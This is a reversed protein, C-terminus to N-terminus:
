AEGMKFHKGALVILLLVPLTLIATLTFFAPYGVSEVISGSYGGFVKPFLTM